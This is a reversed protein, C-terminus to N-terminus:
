FNSEKPDIVQYVTLGNNRWMDCVLMRDDICFAIQDKPLKDLIRQKIEFDPGPMNRMFLHDYPINHIELWDETALGARSIQRGSVILVTYDNKLQKVWEVIVPMPPDKMIEKYSEFKDWLKSDGSIFHRRHGCDALTGDMDVIVIKKDDFKILGNMLAMTEIVARGLRGPRNLDRSICEENTVCLDHVTFKMGLELALGAWMDKTKRSLNTNDIIVSYGEAVAERVLEISEDKMIKEKKASFHKPDHHNKIRLDDWSIRVWKDPEKKMLDLAYTTKGSGPLGVMLLMTKM